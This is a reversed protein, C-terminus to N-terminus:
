KITLVSGNQTPDNALGYITMIGNVVTIDDYAEAGGETTFYIDAHDFFSDERVTITKGTAFAQYAGGDISRHWTYGMEGDPDIEETGVFIRATLTTVEGDKLTYGESSDIRCVVASEGPTGDAGTNGTICVGTESPTYSITGDRKTIRSRRWLYMGETWQPQQISWYGGSLYIPSVSLYFEDATAYIAEKTAEDIKDDVTKGTIKFKTAEMELIGNDLDLFFTKDDASKLVGAKILDASLTGSQVYSANILLQGDQIYIGQAKGNDTLVKLVDEQSLGEFAEQAIQKTKTKLQNIPTDEFGYESDPEAMNEASGEASCVLRYTTDLSSWITLTPTSGMIWCSDHAEMAPDIWLDSAKIPYYLVGTLVRKVYDVVAQNAYPCSIEIDNTGSKGSFFGVESNIKLTVRDVEVGDGLLEYGDESCELEIESESDVKPVVLLLKDEPTIYFNGAHAAAIASWVSRISQGAPPTVIWDDGENIVTRPDIEVGVQAASERLVTIMPKPWSDEVVDGQFFSQNAMQMKDRCTLKVWDDFFKQRRYVKFTGLPIFSTTTNGNKLAVQALVTAGRPITRGALRLCCELTFCPTNGILNSPTFLTRTIKLSNDEIDNLSTYVDQGIIVKYTCVTGEQNILTNWNSPKTLM